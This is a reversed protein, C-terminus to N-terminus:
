TWLKECLYLRRGARGSDEQMTKANPHAIHVDGRLASRITLGDKKMAELQAGRVIFTVDAGDAALFGGLAGGTGGAGIIV